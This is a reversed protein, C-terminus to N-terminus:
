PQVVVLVFWAIFTLSNAALTARRACNSIVGGFIPSLNEDHELAAARTKTAIDFRWMQASAFISLASLIMMFIAVLVVHKKVSDNSITFGLAVIHVGFHWSFWAVYITWLKTWTEHLYKFEQDLDM